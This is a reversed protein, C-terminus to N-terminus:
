KLRKELRDLLSLITYMDYDPQDDSNALVFDFEGNYGILGEYKSGIFSLTRKDQLQVYVKGSLYKHVVIISFHENSSYLGRYLSELLNSHYPYKPDVLELETGLKVNDVTALEKM